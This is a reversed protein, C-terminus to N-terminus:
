LAINMPSGSGKSDAVNAWARKPRGILLRAIVSLSRHLLSDRDHTLMSGAPASRTTSFGRKIGQRNPRKRGLDTM